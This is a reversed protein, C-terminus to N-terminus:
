ASIIKGDSIEIVRGCQVAIKPDHTVIVVTKGESHLRKFVEMIEASTKTDLAGTPEDALILSPSNVIARAIAVRQKEGGLLESASKNALKKIGMADIAKLSLGRKNGAKIPYLPLMVNELVSYEEILTFDQKIFGVKKARLKTKNAESMKSVEHDEFYYQGNSFDDLMGIIHLLTSKGSGSRGVIATFEGKGIELSVDKLASYKNQKKPNFVKTINVLRIM